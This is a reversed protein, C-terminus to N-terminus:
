AVPQWTLLHRFAPELGANDTITAPIQSPSTIVHNNTITVGGGTREPPERMWYNGEIHLPDYQTTGGWNRHNRTWDIPNNYLGNNTITVNTAGNDTYIGKSNPQGNEDHIVNGSVRLGRALDPGTIGNVYVGGGDNLGLMHDFILNNTIANRNSYNPLTPQQIKDLWGGWGISIGTYPTQSIQNHAITTREAYGVFVAVGSHYEVPTHHLYNNVIRNGSVRDAAPAQPNHVDAIQIANASIDTFVSGSVTSNKTGKGLTLGAGGLHAFGTGIFQINDAYVFTVNAVTKSWAGYPCTGGPVNTCLGQTLAAGTGTYTYTAQIESFGEATSPRLWTGYSFQIGTFVVHHISATATGRADLLRELVPVIVKARALDEGARPIYYVRNQASDLYWEGAQDLLEFANEVSTPLVHLAPRGVLNWAQNPIRPPRRDTNDWCPQAMTIATPSIAAVPCRPETWGGLGARYVFEIDKPNRWNDMTPASTTYGRSTKTLRVPVPGNARQARRGDVFLQRTRLGAPAAASWINRATDFRTWGTLQRGGSILPRAGSAATWVVNHGGTGSDRADMTLTEALQYTGDALSVVIDDTMATNLTRVVDRARALTRLPAMPTTGANADNGTPSVYITTAAAV